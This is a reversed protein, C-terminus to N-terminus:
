QEFNCPGYIIVKTYHYYVLPMMVGCYVLWETRTWYQVEKCVVNDNYILESGNFTHTEITDPGCPNYGLLNSGGGTQDTDGQTTEVPLPYAMEMKGCSLLLAM